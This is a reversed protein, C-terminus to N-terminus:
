AFLNEDDSVPCGMRDQGLSPTYTPITDRTFRKDVGSFRLMVRCPQGFRNKAVKMEIASYGVPMDAQEESPQWLFLVAAAGQELDASGRLDALSPPREKTEREGRIEQRGDRTMQCIEILAAQEQKMTEVMMRAALSIAEHQKQGASERVYQMHDVVVLKAGSRCASRVTAQLQPPTLNGCSIVSVNAAQERTLNHPQFFRWCDGRSMEMSVFAVKTGVRANEAMMQVAMSSKGGGPKGALVYCRGACLPLFRDLNTHCGYESIGWVAVASDDEPEEIDALTEWGVRDDGASALLAAEELPDTGPEDLRHYASIIRDAVRRKKALERMDNISKLLLSPSVGHESAELVYAGHELLDWMGGPLSHRVVKALMGHATTHIAAAFDRGVCLGAVDMAQLVEWLGKSRDDGFDDTTLKDAVQHWVKQGYTLITGLILKELDPNTFKM